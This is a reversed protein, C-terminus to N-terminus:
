PRWGSSRYWEEIEKQRAHWDAPPKEATSRRERRRRIDEALPGLGIARRREDVCEPNEIPHPSMEGTSDWDFQTGYRQPRGESVRIRDELMAVQLLTAEGAAAATRLLPLARRLLAPEGIAHQVILWAAQAGDTGVLSRGPWGVEDIVAALRVANRRHVREMVPHYGRFLSGDAALEARVRQDEAALALLEDRLAPNQVSHPVYVV